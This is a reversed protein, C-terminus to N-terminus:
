ELVLQISGDSTGVVLNFSFKACLSVIDKMEDSYFLSNSSVMLSVGWRADGLELSAFSIVPRGGALREQNFHKVLASIQILQSFKM